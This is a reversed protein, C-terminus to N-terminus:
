LVRRTHFLYKKSLIWLKRRGSGGSKSSAPEPPQIELSRQPSCILIKEKDVDTRRPEGHEYIVKLITAATVSSNVSNCSLVVIAFSEFSIM